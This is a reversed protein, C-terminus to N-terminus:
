LAKCAEKSMRKSVADGVMASGMLMLKAGNHPIQSGPWVCVPLACLSWCVAYIPSTSMVVCAVQHCADPPLPASRM